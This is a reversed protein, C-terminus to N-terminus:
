PRDMFSTRVFDRFISGRETDAIHGCQSLREEGQGHPCVMFNSFESTKQLLFRPRGCRLFGEGRTRLVDVSSLGGSQPRRKHILYINYTAHLKSRNAFQRLNLSMTTRLPQM